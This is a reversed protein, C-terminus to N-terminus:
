SIESEYGATKSEKMSAIETWDEGKVLGRNIIGCTLDFNENQHPIVFYIVCQVCQAQVDESWHNMVLFIGSLVGPNSALLM